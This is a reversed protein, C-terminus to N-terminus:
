DPQCRSGALSLSDSASFIGPSLKKLLYGLVALYLSLFAVFLFTLLGALILGSQGFVHIAVFIWSVGVGFMGLGFLWGRWAAQKATVRDWSLFLLLLSLLALPYLFFPAFALPMLAGALLALLNGKWGQM